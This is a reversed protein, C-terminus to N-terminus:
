AVTLYLYVSRYVNPTGAKYLDFEMKQGMGRQTPTFSVSNQWTQNNALSFSTTNITKNALTVVLTYDAKANEQNVVGVTVNSTQGITLNTPYNSAKGESGLLYLETFPEGPNPYVVILVTGLVALALLTALVATLATTRNM